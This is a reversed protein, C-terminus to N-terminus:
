YSTVDWQCGRGWNYQHKTLVIKELHEVHGAGDPLVFPCTPKTHPTIM